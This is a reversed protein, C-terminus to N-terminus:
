PLFLSGSILGLCSWRRRAGLSTRRFGSTRRLLRSTTVREAKRRWALQSWKFENTGPSPTSGVHGLPGLSKLAAPFTCRVFSKALENGKKGDMPDPSHGVTRPNRVGLHAGSESSRPPAPGM